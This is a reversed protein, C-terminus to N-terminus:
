QAALVIPDKASDPRAGHGGVGRIKLDVSTASALAYGSTYGVKGAALDASDHLAVVFDPKPFRSYLGDDLMAQAGNGTEEAPQGILVLTGHWRDKLSALLKATGLMTTIHIDHGCAHMVSVEQGADNLAKAKSAYPLGTKEEVPLADLDTRVMVTPGAGNRLLAVVGYGTWGPREYKGIRETVVYGLARLEKAFFASTKEEQHSPEPAAHLMKYTALLSSMQWDILPELSQQASVSALSVGVTFIVLAIPNKM